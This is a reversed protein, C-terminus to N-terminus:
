APSSGADLVTFGQFLAPNRTLGPIVFVGNPTTRVIVVGDPEGSHRDSGTASNNRSQWYLFTILNEKVNAILM